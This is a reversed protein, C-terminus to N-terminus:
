EWTSPAWSCATLRRPAALRTRWLRPTARKPEKLRSQDSPPLMLSVPNTGVWGLRRAAYRYIRNTVGIIIAITAEALGAARLTRVLAALDDPTVGDLRRREFRARLHNDVANRYCDQTTQRLNQVPGVLWQDAADGFRLRPNDAVREGRGRQAVLQDRLARAATIGGDVTRWRQKGAADKFGVEFVGTPRRYINREVRVRRAPTSGTM